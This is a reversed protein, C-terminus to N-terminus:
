IYWIDKIKSSFLQNKLLSICTTIYDPKLTKQLQFDNNSEDQSEYTIMIKKLLSYEYYKLNM